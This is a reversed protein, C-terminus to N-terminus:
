RRVRERDRRMHRLLFRGSSRLDGRDGRFYFGSFRTGAITALLSGRAGRARVFREFQGIARDGSRGERLVPRSFMLSFSSTYLELDKVKAVPLLAPDLVEYVSFDDRLQVLIGPHTEDQGHPPLFSFYVRHLNLVLDPMLVHRGNLVEGAALRQAIADRVKEDQYAWVTEAAVSPRKSDLDDKLQRAAKELGSIAVQEDM